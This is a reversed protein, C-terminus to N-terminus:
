SIGGQVAPAADIVAQAAEFAAVESTALGAQYANWVDAANAYGTTGGTQNGALVCNLTQTPDTDQVPPGDVQVVVHWQGPVIQVMGIVTDSDFAMEPQSGGDYVPAAGSISRQYSGLRGAVTNFARMAAVAVALGDSPAAGVAAVQAETFLTKSM